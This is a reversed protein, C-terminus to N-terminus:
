AEMMIALNDVSIFLEDYTLVTVDKLSNRFIEFSRRQTENFSATQSDGIIVVATPNPAYLNPAHHRLTHLNNMISTRYELAQVCAGALQRSPPYANTRYKAGMLPAAPTKIEFLVVNSGCQALFDPLNGGSGTVSKGGVYVQDKLVFVRGGSAPLLLEPTEKFFKQWFGESSNNRQEEWKQVARRLKNAQAPRDVSALAEFIRDVHSQRIRRLDDASYTSNPDDVLRHHLSCLLLVNEYSHLQSQTLTPSYRSGSPSFANISAVELLATGDPM